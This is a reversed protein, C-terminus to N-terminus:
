HCRRGTLTLGSRRGRRWRRRCRRRSRCAGQSGVIGLVLRNLRNNLAHILCLLIGKGLIVRREHTIRRRTIVILLHSLDVGVHGMAADRRDLKDIDLPAWDRHCARIGRVRRGILRPLGLVGVAGGILVPIAVDIGEHFVLAAPFDLIVSM